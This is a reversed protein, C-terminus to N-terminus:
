FNGSLIDMPHMLPADLLNAFELEKSIDQKAPRAWNQFIAGGNASPHTLYSSGLGYQGTNPDVLFLDKYLQQPSVQWARLLFKYFNNQPMGTSELYHAPGGSLPLMACWVHTDNAAEGVAGQVLWLDAEMLWYALHYCFSSSGRNLDAETYPFIARVIRLTDYLLQSGDECDGYVEGSPGVNFGVYDNSFTAQADTSYNIKSSVFYSFLKAIQDYVFFHQASSIGTRPQRCFEAVSYGCEQMAQPLERILFRQWDNVQQFSVGRLLARGRGALAVYPIQLDPTCQFNYFVSHTTRLSEKVPTSQQLTQLQYEIYKNLTNRTAELTRFFQKNTGYQLNKKDLEYHLVFDRFDVFGQRLDIQSFNRFLLRNDAYGQVVIFFPGMALQLEACEGVQLIRTRQYPPQQEPMVLHLRLKLDRRKYAPYSVSKFCFSNNM